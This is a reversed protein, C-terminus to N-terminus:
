SSAESAAEAAQDPLRHLAGPVHLAAGTAPLDHWSLGAFAPLEGALRDFVKGPSQNAWRPTSARSCTASCRSRRRADPGAAPLRARLAAGAVRRQRLHRGERRPPRGAPRHGGGPGAALRGLRLRGPVEGPAAARGDGADYAGGGFDSDCVVLVACRAAGDGLLLDEGRRADQREGAALGALEAGRRNPAARPRTIAAARSRPITWAPGVDIPVSRHPSGAADALKGFLYAEEPDPVGSGLFAIEGARSARRCGATSPTSRTRGASATFPAHGNGNGGQHARAAHDAAADEQLARLHLPRLRVDLLRQGRPQLAAQLAQHRRAPARDHHQLRGRLRHLDVAEQRPVLRARRLPLPDLDARGGPLHRGRLHRAPQGARKGPFTGIEARRAATSSASSAPARSRRRHLAHLAHVPHLPEHQPRRQPGLPIRERGPYTRKDEYRFRSLAVGHKFSYDQLACEGAQDCIPCDLPHNILLFEM